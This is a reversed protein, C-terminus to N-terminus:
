VCDRLENTQYGLVGCSEDLTLMYAMLSNGLTQFLYFFLYGLFGLTSGSAIAIANPQLEFVRGALVSCCRLWFHLTIKSESKGTVMTLHELNRFLFGPHM